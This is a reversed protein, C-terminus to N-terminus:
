NNFGMRPLPLPGRGPHDRRLPLAPTTGHKAPGTEQDWDDMLLLLDAADVRGDRNIDTLSNSYAGPYEYAGMDFANAGDRGRGPVDLPRSLGDLDNAPGAMSASDICPSNVTLHFDRAEADRFLPDESINGEGKYESRINTYTVTAQGIEGSFLEVTNRIEEPGINWLISNTISTRSGDNWVGGVGSGENDVLTCSDLSIGAAPKYGSIAGGLGSTRNGVFLCSAFTSKAHNSSFGGGGVGGQNRSIVSDAVRLRGRNHYIGAGTSTCYNSDITCETILCDVSVNIGGGSRSGLGPPFSDAVNGRIMCKDIHVSQSFSFVDVGGGSFFARNDEILCDQVLGDAIFVGGGNGALNKRITCRRISAEGTVYIGGGGEILSVTNSEILCDSIDLSGSFCAIAGGQRGTTCHMFTSSRIILTCYTAQIGSSLNHSFSCNDVHISGDRGSIGGGHVAINDMLSCNRVVCDSQECEIGGGLHNNESNRLILGDLIVDSLGVIKVVPVFQIGTMDIITANARWDREQESQETGEFGGIISIESKAIVPENYTGERVWVSDGAEAQDVGAQISAVPSSWSSGDGTGDPAVFLTAAPASAPALIQIVSLVSLFPLRPLPNPCRM